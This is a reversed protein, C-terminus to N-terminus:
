IACLFPMPEVLFPRSLSDFRRPALSLGIPLKDQGAVDKDSLASGLNVGAGIHALALVVGQKSQDVAGHLKLAHVLVALLDRNVFFDCLLHGDFAPRLDPRKLIQLTNIEATM